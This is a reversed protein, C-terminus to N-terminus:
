KPIINRIENYLQSIRQKTLGLSKAVSLNGLNEDMVREVFAEYKPFSRILQQKIKENAEVPEAPETLSGIVARIDDESVEVDLDELYFDSNALKGALDKFRSDIHIWTWSILGANGARANWRRAATLAALYGEQMLDEDNFAKIRSRYKRIRSKIIPEIQKLFKEM